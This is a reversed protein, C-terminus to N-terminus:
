DDSQNRGHLFHAPLPPVHLEKNDFQLEERWADFQSRYLRDDTRVIISEQLKDIKKEMLEVKSYVDRPQTQTESYAIWTFLAIATVTWPAANALISRTEPTM